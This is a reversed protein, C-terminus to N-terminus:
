NFIDIWEKLLYSGSLLVAYEEEDVRKVEGSTTLIRRNDNSTTRPKYPGRQKGTTRGDIKLRGMMVEGKLNSQARETIKEIRKSDCPMRM